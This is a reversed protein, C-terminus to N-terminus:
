VRARRKLYGYFAMMPWAFFLFPARYRLPPTTLFPEAHFVFSQKFRLANGGINHTIPIVSASRVKAIVPELDVDLFSGLVVASAAIDASLDEYRVKICRQPYRRCIMESVLNGVAWNLGLLFFLPFYLGPDKWNRNFLKFGEGGQLRKLKSYVASNGSRVLYIVRSNPFERLLMLAHVPSRGSDVIHECGTLEALLRYLKRYAGVYVRADEDPKMMGLYHRPSRYRRIENVLDAWRPGDSDADYRSKVQRWFSCGDLYSGCSCLQQSDYGITHLEGCAVVGPAAGLLGGLITSGCHPRGMIFVINVDSSPM